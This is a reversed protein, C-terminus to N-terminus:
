RSVSLARMRKSTARFAEARKRSTQGALWMRYLRIGAFGALVALLVILLARKM